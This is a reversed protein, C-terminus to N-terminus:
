RWEMDLRYTGNESLYAHDFFLTFTYEINLHENSFDNIELKYTRGNLSNIQNVPFYFYDTVRFGNDKQLAMMHTEEDIFLQDLPAFEIFGDQYILELELYPNGNINLPLRPYFAAQEIFELRVKSYTLPVQGIFPVSLAEFRFILDDDFDHSELYNKPDFMSQIQYVQNLRYKVGLYDESNITDDPLTVEKGQNAGLQFDITLPKNGFDYVLKFNNLGHIIDQKLVKVNFHYDRGIDVVFQASALKKENVKFNSLYLSANVVREGKNFATFDFMLQQDQNLTLSSFSFDRIMVEDVTVKPFNGLLLPTWMLANIPKFNRM